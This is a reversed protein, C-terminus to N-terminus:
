SSEAEKENFAEPEGLEQDEEELEPPLSCGPEGPGDGIRIHFHNAHHREHRIFPSVQIWWKRGEEGLAEAEQRLQAILKRDLFVVKICAFPNSFIKKVLWFNSIPDFQKSFVQDSERLGALKRFVSQKKKPLQSARALIQELDFVNLFGLDVDKGSM